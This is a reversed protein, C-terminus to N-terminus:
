CLLGEDSWVISEIDTVQLILKVADDETCANQINDEPGEKQESKECHWLTKPADPEKNSMGQSTNKAHHEKFEQGFSM